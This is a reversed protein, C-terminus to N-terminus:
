AHWSECGESGKGIRGLAMAIFVSDEPTLDEEAGVSALSFARLNALAEDYRGIRYLAVGLTNAYMHNNPEAAVAVEAAALAPAYEHLSRDARSVVAWAANNLTLPSQDLWEVAELAASQVDVPEEGEEIAQAISASLIHTQSLQQVLEYAQRQSGSISARLTDREQAVDQRSPERILGTDLAVLASATEGNAQLARALWYWHNAWQPDLAIARRLPEIAESTRALKVLATGKVLFPFAWTSNMEAARSAADLAGSFDNTNDLAVALRLWADGWDPALEVARRLPAIAEEFRRQDLRIQGQMWWPNAWNPAVRVAEDAAAEAEDLRGQGRRIAALELWPGGGNPDLRAAIACADAADDPRGLKGLLRAYRYWMLWWDPAVRTAEVMPQLGEDARGIFSLAEGLSSLMGADAATSLSIARQFEPVADGPRDTDMYKWGLSFHGGAWEDDTALCTKLLMICEDDRGQKTYVDNLRDAWARRLDLRENPLDLAGAQVAKLADIAGGVDDIARLASALSVSEAVHQWSGDGYYDHAWRQRAGCQLIFDRERGVTKRERVLFDVAWFTDPHDIGLVARRATLNDEIVVSADEHREARALEQALGGVMHIATEHRAGLVRVADRTLEQRGQLRQEATLMGALSERLTLVQERALITNFHNEGAWSRTDRLNKEAVALAEATRGIRHLAWAYDGTTASLLQSPDRRDGLWRVFEEYTRITDDFRGLPNYCSIAFARVRESEGPLNDADADVLPLLQNGLELCAQYRGTFQLGRMVQVRLKILRPDHDHVLQLLESEARRLIELGREAPKIGLLSQGIVGRWQQARIPDSGFTEDISREAAQLVDPLESSTHAASDASLTIPDGLGIIRRLFANTVDTQRSKELASVEARRAVGRQHVTGLLGILLAFFVCSSATVLARHRGLAKRARYGPSEPAARLPLGSLYSRLDEALMTASEYRRSRDKRMAMLPIWELERRLESAIRSSDCQRKKGIAAGRKAEITTLRRSPTPPEVDRIIRQIEAYGKNRLDSAEFPLLGTLLEYLVVGLSYVDTRTDIDLRGMEAQEPSMYEPTGILQGTETFITKDTLSHSIAKAVGFDIVKPISTGDRLSVLINSPKIDRHILGKMHAHQVAECVPVFLELRQRITFAHRDCFTTISEGHVYEMVFYPRGAPTVGGDLVSAVNPHDMVALAQREQEFRAIVSKSDMGPKVIKVAVRQVMPERREALYVVGFGGEGIVELLKYPGIWEGTQGDSGPQERLPTPPTPGTQWTERTCDHPQHSEAAM